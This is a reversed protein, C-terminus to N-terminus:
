NVTTRIITDVSLIIGKTENKMQWVTRFNDQINGKQLRKSLKM